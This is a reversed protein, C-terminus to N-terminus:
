KRDGQGPLQPAGLFGRLEKLFDYYLEQDKAISIQQIRKSFEGDLGFSGVLDTLAQQTEEEMNDFTSNTDTPQSSSSEPDFYEAMKGSIISVGDVEYTDEAFTVDFLLFSDKGTDIGLETSVSFESNENEMMELNEELLQRKAEDQEEALQQRVSEMEEDMEAEEKLKPSEITVALLAEIGSSLTRKMYIIPQGPVDDVTWGNAQFFQILSRYDLFHSEEHKIEESLAGVVKALAQDFQPKGGSFFRLPQPGGMPLRRTGRAAIRVFKTLM